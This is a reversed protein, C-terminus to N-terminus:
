EDDFIGATQYARYSADDHWRLPRVHYASYDHNWKYDCTHPDGVAPSQNAVRLHLKGTLDSM